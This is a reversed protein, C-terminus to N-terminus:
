HDIEVRRVCPLREATPQDGHDSITNDQGCEGKSWCARDRRQSLCANNESNQDAPQKKGFGQRETADDGTQDDRQASNQEGM